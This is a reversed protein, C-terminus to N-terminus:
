GTEGSDADDVMAGSRLSRTRSGFHSHFSSSEPSPRESSGLGFGTFSFDTVDAAVFRYQRLPNRVTVQGDPSLQVKPHFACRWVVFAVVALVVLGDSHGHLLSVIELM